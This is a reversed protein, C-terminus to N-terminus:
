ILQVEKLVSMIHLSICYVVIWFRASASRDINLLQGRESQLARRLKPVTKKGEEDEALILTALM